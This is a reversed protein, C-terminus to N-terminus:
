HILVPIPLHALNARQIKRHNEGRFLAETNSDTPAAESQGTSLELGNDSDRLAVRESRFSQLFNPDPQEAHRRRKKVGIAMEKRGALHPTRNPHVYSRQSVRIRRHTHGKAAAFPILQRVVDGEKYVHLAVTNLNSTFGLRGLVGRRVIRRLERGTIASLVLFLVVILSILLAPVPPPSTVNV